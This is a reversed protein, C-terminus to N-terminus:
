APPRLIKGSLLDRIPTPGTLSGVPGVLIYDLEQGPMRRVTRADRAPPYGSLNASTSVLAYGCQRCLANAVPHATVRVAITRHKGTLWSPTTNAAPVVWTQPGPWSELLTNRATGALPAFYKELQGIDAAILILGQDPSRQKIALLKSVADFNDPDCGLGYVAETPYAIVGGREIAAAARRL